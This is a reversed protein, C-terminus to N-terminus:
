LVLESPDCLKQSNRTWVQNEERWEIGSGVAWQGDGM